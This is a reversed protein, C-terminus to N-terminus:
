EGRLLEEEAKQREEASPRPAVMLSVDYSWGVLHYALSGKRPWPKRLERATDIGLVLVIIILVIFIIRKM